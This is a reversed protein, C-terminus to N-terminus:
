GVDLKISVNDVFGFNKSLDIDFGVMGMEMRNIIINLLAELSKLLDAEQENILLTGLYEFVLQAKKQVMCEM